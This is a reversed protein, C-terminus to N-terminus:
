RGSRTERPVTVRSPRPAETSVLVSVNVATNEAEDPESEEEGVPEDLGPEPVSDSVLKDNTRIRSEVHDLLRDPPGIPGLRHDHWWWNGLVVLCGCVYCIGAMALGVVVALNVVVLCGCVCCIGEVMAMNPDFEEQDALVANGLPRKASSRHSLCLTEPNSLVVVM